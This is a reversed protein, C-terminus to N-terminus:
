RPDKLGALERRQECKTKNEGCRGVQKKSKRPTRKVIRRRAEKPVTGTKAMEGCQDRTLLMYYPAKNSASVCLEKGHPVCARLQVSNNWGM